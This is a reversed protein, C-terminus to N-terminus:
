EDIGSPSNEFITIEPRMFNLSKKDTAPMELFFEAFLKTKQNNDSEAEYDGERPPLSNEIERLCGDLFENGSVCRRRYKGEVKIVRKLRRTM